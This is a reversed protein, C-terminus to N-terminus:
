VEHQMKKEIPGMNSDYNKAYGRGQRIAASIQSVVDGMM